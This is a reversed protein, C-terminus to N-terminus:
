GHSAMAMRVWIREERNVKSNDHAHIARVGVALAAPGAAACSGARRCSAELLAMTTSRSLSWTSNASLGSLTRGMAEILLSIVATTVRSAWSGISSTM